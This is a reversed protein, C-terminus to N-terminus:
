LECFKAIGLETTIYDLTDPIDYKNRPIAIRMECLEDFFPVPSLCVHIPCEKCSMLITERTTKRLLHNLNRISETLRNYNDYTDKCNSFVKDLFLFAESYSITQYIYIEVKGHYTTTMRYEDGLVSNKYLTNYEILIKQVDNFITNISM